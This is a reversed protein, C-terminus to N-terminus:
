PKFKVLINEGIFPITPTIINGSVTYNVSHILLIGDRYIELDLDYNTTPLNDVTVTITTSTQNTFKQTTWGQMLIVGSGGAIAGTRKIRFNYDASIRNVDDDDEWADNETLFNCSDINVGSVTGMYKDLLDRARGEIVYNDDYSNADHYFDFQVRIVDVSSVGDKTDNPITNIKNWVIYPFATNQPARLPYIKATGGLEALLTADDGLITFIAAGINM